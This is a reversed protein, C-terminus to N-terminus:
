PSTKACRTPCRSASRAPSRLTMVSRFLFLIVNRCSSYLHGVQRPVQNCVQRSTTSCQRDNVYSTKTRPVSRCEQRPVQRCSRSYGYGSCEEEYRTECEQENVTETVPKRVDQCHTEPVDSCQQDYETRCEQRTDFVTNCSQSFETRCERKFDTEQFLPFYCGLNVHVTYM